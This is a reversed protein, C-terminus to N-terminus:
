LRGANETFKRTDNSFLDTKRGLFIQQNFNIKKKLLPKILYLRDLIVAIYNHLWHGLFFDWTKRNWNINHINNLKPTLENIIKKYIKKTLNIQLIQNKIDVDKKNLILFNFKKKKNKILKLFFNSLFLNVNKKQYSIKKPDLILKIM